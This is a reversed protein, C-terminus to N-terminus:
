PLLRHIKKPQSTSNQTPIEGFEQTWCQGNIWTKFNKWPPIFAGSIALLQKRHDIELRIAPALLPLIKQYAPYKVLFNGWEPDLGRKDGPFIKRAEDFIARASKIDEKASPLSSSSPSSSKEPNPDPNDTPIGPIVPQTKEPNKPRGGNMGNKRANDAREQAKKMEKDVRLNRYCEGERYFHKIFVWSCREWQPRTVRLLLKLRAPDSPICGKGMWCQDLARRYFADEELSFHLTDKLYDGPYWPLWIDTKNEM